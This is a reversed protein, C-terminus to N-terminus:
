GTTVLPRLRDLTAPGIGPVRDLDEVSAYPRNDIIGQAKAPGIGPLSELEAATATNVNILGAAASVEGPQDDPLNAPQSIDLAAARVIATPTPLAATLGAPPAAPVESPVAQLDIGPTGNQGAAAAAPGPLNAAAAPDTGAQVIPIHLQAGDTLPQAQNVFAPDVHSLLGGAAAIADGIRAGAPLTYLGPHQVAGSVFIVLPSPTSPAPTSTPVPSPVPSPMPPPPQLQMAAPEPRRLFFVAAGLLVLATVLGLLYSPLHFQTQAEPVPAAASM